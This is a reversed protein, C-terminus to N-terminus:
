PQDGGRDRASERAQQQEVTEGKTGVRHKRKLASMWQGAQRKREAANDSWEPVAVAGAAADGM